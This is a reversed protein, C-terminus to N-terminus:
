NESHRSEEPLKGSPCYIGVQHVSGNPHQTYEYKWDPENSFTVIISADNPENHKEIKWTEQPYKQQLYISVEQEVKTIDIKKVYRNLNLTIAAGICFVLLCLLLLSLKKPVGSSFLRYVWQILLGCIASAVVVAVVASFSLTAQPSLNIIGWALSFLFAIAGPSRTRKM